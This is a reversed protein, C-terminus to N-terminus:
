VYKVLLIIQGLHYADHQIIGHIHEYYTINNTPYVDSFTNTNMEKLFTLWKDQSEKLREITKGWAAQM